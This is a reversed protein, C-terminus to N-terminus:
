EFSNTLQSLNLPILACWCYVVQHSKALTEVDTLATAVLVEVCSVDNSSTDTEPSSSLVQNFFYSKWRRNRGKKGEMASSRRMRDKDKHYTERSLWFILQLRIVLWFHKSYINSILIKFRNRSYQRSFTLSKSIYDVFIWWANSKM